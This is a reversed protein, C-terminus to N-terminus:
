STPPDLSTSPSPPLRTELSPLETQRAIPEDAFRDIALRRTYAAVFAYGVLAGVIIILVTPGSHSLWLSVDNPRLLFHNVLSIVILTMIVTVTAAWLGLTQKLLRRPGIRLRRMLVQFFLVAMGLFIIILAIYDLAFTMTRSSGTHLWRSLMSYAQQVDDQQMVRAASAWITWIAMFELMGVFGAFLAASVRQLSSLSAEITRTNEERTKRNLRALLVPLVLAGITLGVLRISLAPLRIKEVAAPGLRYGVTILVAMYGGVGVLQGLLYKGIPIKFLGCAIVTVIRVGPVSRGIIIAVLGRRTLWAETRRLRDEDLHIYKGFRDVLPRGGSRAVFYLITAGLNIAVFMLMILSFSVEHLRLRFGAYLLVVDAPIPMPIGLDELFLIILLAIDGYRELFDPM